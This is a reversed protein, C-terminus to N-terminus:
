LVILLCLKTIPQIGSFVIQCQYPRQQLTFIAINEWGLCLNSVKVM